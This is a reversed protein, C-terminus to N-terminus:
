EFRMYSTHYFCVNFTHHESWANLTRKIVNFAHKVYPLCVNSINSHVHININKLLCSVTITGQAKAFPPVNFSKDTQGDTRGKTQRDTVFVKVQSM